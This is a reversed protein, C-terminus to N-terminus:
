GGVRPVWVANTLIETVQFYEKKEHSTQAVVQVVAPLGVRKLLDGLRGQCSKVGGRGKLSVM